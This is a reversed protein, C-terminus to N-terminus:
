KSHFHGGLKPQFIWFYIEQNNLLFSPVNERNTETHKNNRILKKCNICSLSANNSSHFHGGLNPQFIWFYIEQNNLLFTLNKLTVFFPMLVDDNVV